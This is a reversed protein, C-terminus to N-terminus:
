RKTRKLDLLAHFQLVFVVATVVAYFLSWLFREPPSLSPMAEGAAVAITVALGFGCAFLLLLWWVLRLFFAPRM